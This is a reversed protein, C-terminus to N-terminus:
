TWVMEFLMHDNRDKFAVVFYEMAGSLRNVYTSASMITTKDRKLVALDIRFKGVCNDTCWAHLQDYQDNDVDIGHFVSDKLRALVSATYGYGHYRANIDLFEKNMDTDYVHHYEEWDRVNHAALFRQEKYAKIRNNLRVIWNFM